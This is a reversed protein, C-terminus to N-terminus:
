TTIRKGTKDRKYRGPRFEAANFVPGDVCARKGNPISCKGCIGESCSTMREVLHYIRGPQTHRREIADAKKIAIEPGCNFFYAGEYQGTELVKELLGSILGNHGRTGDDTSIFLEGMEALKDHYVLEDATKAGIVFVRKGNHHTAAHHIPAIGCGAGVYIVMDKEPFGFGNGYPGRVRVVNNKKLEFVKSTTEGFKEGDEKLRVKRILLELGFRDDAVSFPKAHRNDVKLHVYQGPKADLNEYFRLLRLTESIEAIDKIIFPRYQRIEKDLTMRKALDTGNKLDLELNHFYTRIEESDLQALSTGIAYFFNNDIKDLCNISSAGDIGGMVIMPVKVADRLKKITRYAIPFIEPGSLGGFQNSLEPNPGGLTNIASIGDAGADIAANVVEIIRIVGANVKVILPKKTVKRVASVNSYVLKPDSGILVGGKEAHPCSVNLEMGGIIDGLKDFEAACHQFREENSEGIQPMLFVDNPVSSGLERFEKIMEELGPNAYGVANWGSNQTVLLFIDEPNGVKPEITTSKGVYFGLQPVNNLMWRATDSNTAIVGSPFGFRGRVQKGFLSFQRRPTTDDPEPKHWAQTKKLSANTM